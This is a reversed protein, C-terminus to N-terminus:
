RDGNDKISNHLKQVDETKVSDVNQPEKLLSICEEVKSSLEHPERTSANHIADAITADLGAINSSMAAEHNALKVLVDEHNSAVNSLADQLNVIRDRQLQLTTSKSQLDIECAKLSQEALDTRHHAKLLRSQQHTREKELALTSEKLRKDISEKHSKIKQQEGLILQADDRLRAYDNNLGKVFNSLKKVKDQWGPVLERYKLLEAKHKSVQENSEQLQTDLLKIITKFDAITDDKEKEKARSEVRQQMQKRYYVTLVKLMDEPDVPAIESTSQGLSEPHAVSRHGSGARRKRVKSAVQQGHLISWDLTEEGISRDSVTGRYSQLSRGLSLSPSSSRSSSQSTTHYGLGENVLTPGDILATDDEEQSNHINITPAPKNTEAGSISTELVDETLAHSTVASDKSNVPPLSTDRPQNLPKERGENGSPEIQQSETCPGKSARLPELDPPNHSILPTPNSEASQQEAEKPPLAAPGKTLKTNFAPKVAKGFMFGHAPSTDLSKPLAFPALMATAQPKPTPVANTDEARTSQTVGTTQTDTGTHEDSSILPGEVTPFLDSQLLDGFADTSQQEDTPPSAKRGFGTINAVAQFLVPNAM